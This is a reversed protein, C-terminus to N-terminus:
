ATMSNAVVAMYISMCIDIIFLALRECKTFRHHRPAKCISILPHNLWLYAKWDKKKDNYWVIKGRLLDTKFAIEAQTFGNFKKAKTQPSQPDNNIQAIIKNYTELNM